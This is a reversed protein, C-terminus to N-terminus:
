NQDFFEVLKSNIKNLNLMFTKNQYATADKLERM